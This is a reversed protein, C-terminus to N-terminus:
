YHVLIYLNLFKQLAKNLFIDTVLIIIQLNAFIRAKCNAKVEIYDFLFSILIIFFSIVKVSIVMIIDDIVPHPLLEFM